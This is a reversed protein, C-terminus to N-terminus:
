KDSWSYYWLRAPSTQETDVADAGFRERLQAVRRKAIPERDAVRLGNIFARGLFLRKLKPLADPAILESWAGRELRCHYLELTELNPGYASRIIGRLSGRDFTTFEVSLRKLGALAKSRALTRVVTPDLNRIYNSLHLETLNARAPHRLIANLVSPEFWGGDRAGELELRALGSLEEREFLTRFFPGSLDLYGHRVSFSRLRTMLGVVPLLCGIDDTQEFLVVERLPTGDVLGRFLPVNNHMRHTRVGASEIFGRRFAWAFIIDRFPEAWKKAYKKLLAKEHLALRPRQPDDAPLGEFRIQLRIFEARAANAPDETEDLWDAYVLRPADDDPNEVITRLFAEHM